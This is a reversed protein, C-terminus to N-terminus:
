GAPRRAGAHKGGHYLRREDDDDVDKIKTKLKTINPSMNKVQKALSKYNNRDKAQAKVAKQVDIRRSLREKPSSAKKQEWEINASADDETM